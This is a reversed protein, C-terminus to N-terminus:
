LCNPVLEILQYRYQRNPPLRCIRPSHCTALRHRDSTRYLQSAPERRLPSSLPSHSVFARVSGHVWIVPPSATVTAMWHAHLAASTPPPAFAIIATTLQRVIRTYQTIPPVALSHWYGCTALFRGASAARAM